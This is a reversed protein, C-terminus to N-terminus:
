QSLAHVSPLIDDGKDGCLSKAQVLDVPVGLCCSEEGAGVEAGLLQCGDM